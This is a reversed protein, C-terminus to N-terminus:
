EPLGGAVAILEILKRRDVETPPAIIEYHQGDYTLADRETLTSTVDDYRLWFSLVAHGQRGDAEIVERGRAPKVSCWREALDAWEGPQEGYGDDSPAGRRLLTVRRDFQGANVSVM